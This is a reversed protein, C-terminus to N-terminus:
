KLLRFFTGVNRRTTKVAGQVHCPQCFLRSCAVTSDNVLLMRPGAGESFSTFAITEYRPM